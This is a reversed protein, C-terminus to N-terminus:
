SGISRNSGRRTNWDKFSCLEQANIGIILCFGQQYASGRGSVQAAQSPSSKDATAWGTGASSNGTWTSPRTSGSASGTAICASSAGPTLFIAPATASWGSRGRRATQPVMHSSLLIRCWRSPLCTTLSQIHEFFRRVRIDPVIKIHKLSQHRPTHRVIDLRSLSRAWSNSAIM